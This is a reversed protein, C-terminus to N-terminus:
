STGSQLSGSTGAAVARAVSDFIAFVEHLGTIRFLKLLRESSCVLRLSAQREEAHNRAAVLAGLGTSDIFAVDTLDVVVATSGADIAAILRDRLHPASHVDVDGHVAVVLQSEITSETLSLDM